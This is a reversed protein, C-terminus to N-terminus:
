RTNGALFDHWAYGDPLDACAAFELHLIRRHMKTGPQSSASSHEVLPRVLLVDGQNVLVDQAKCGTAGTKKGLHHSGPAVRMPGNEETVEDLHIRATLMSELVTRPAEVHPVGAKCTPATFHSSPTGNDKVAITVDKHWPLGWTQEPPKDFFLVRVLGYRPGLVRELLTPLPSRRWVNAAEPWLALVNRAAYVTGERTCISGARDGALSLAAALKGLIDEIVDQEFVDPVIAFGRSQIEELIKEM